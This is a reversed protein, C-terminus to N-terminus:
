YSVYATRGKYLSCLRYSCTARGFVRQFSTSSLRNPLMARRQYLQSVEMPRGSTEYSVKFKFFM